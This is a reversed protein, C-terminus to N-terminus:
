RLAMKEPRLNTYRKLETWSEHLTFLAVEHIQYGDEFLRSTAEHRLDHFHLDDIGLIRTTRGFGEGISKPNWPFIYESVKPQREIIKMAADTLKFTKHNGLKHKPHKADRVICTKAKRDLDAWELRCIEAERRASYIAFWMIDSMPIRTRGDRRKFNQELKGLEAATPRRDRRRSRGILRLERCATRADQVISPQLPIRKVVKAARLVVGLWVLDNVVTAPGAGAARRARIHDVIMSDTLSIAPKAALTTKKLRKLDDSKTRQWQSVPQFAEIYWDILEALTSHDPASVPPKPTGKAIEEKRQERWDKALSHRPFTAAEDHIVKGEKVIRM